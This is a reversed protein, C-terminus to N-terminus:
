IPTTQAFEMCCAFKKNHCFVHSVFCAVSVSFIHCIKRELENKTGKTKKTTDVQCELGPIIVCVCVCGPVVGGSPDREWTGM